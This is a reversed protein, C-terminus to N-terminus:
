NKKKLCEITLTHEKSRLGWADELYKESDDLEFGYLQAQQLKFELRVTKGELSGIDEAFKLKHRLSDGKIPLCDRWFFSGLPMGSSDVVRVRLEGDVKANVTMQKGKWVFLRTQLWGQKLGADRSVFGDKRLTAMGVARKGVKHGEDYGGYYIYEKDDVTVCDGIWAMAHDWIGPTENRNLFIDKHRVWNEGDRSTCLETWGIGEVPGDADAPLDDRLVRLFGLYLGGRVTPKMGYFEEMGPEEPDAAIIRRAPTWNNLDKCTTQGVLRRYGERNHQPKGQYGDEPQGKYGFTILYCKRLPDWCGSLRDGLLKRDGVDLPNSEHAEFRYGDPSYWAVFAPWPWINNDIHILVYRKDPEPCDSGHDVMVLCYADGKVASNDTSGDISILGLNPHRWHIGDDSEAYGYYGLGTWKKRGAVFWMRYRKLESDYLVKLHWIAQEYWKGDKLIPQPFKEPQHTTRVLGESQEILYDDIFLQPGDPLAPSYPTVEAANTSVCCLLVLIITLILAIAAKTIRQVV